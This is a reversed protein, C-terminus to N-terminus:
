YSRLDPLRGHGRIDCSRYAIGKRSLSYYYSNGAADSGHPRDVENAVQDPATRLHVTDHAGSRLLNQVRVGQLVGRGM